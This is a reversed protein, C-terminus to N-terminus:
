SKPHHLPLARLYLLLHRFYVHQILDDCLVLFDVYQHLRALFM